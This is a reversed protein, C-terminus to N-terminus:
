VKQVHKRIQLHNELRSILSMASELTMSKQQQGGSPSYLAMECEQVLDTVQAILEAPVGRAELKGKINEKSLVSIPLDLKDSLYLLVAKSIEEYFPGHHPDTLLRRATALRKWAVKNAKKKRWLGANARRKAERARLLLAVIFGMLTLLFLGGFWPTVVWLSRAAKWDPMTGALGYIDSPLDGKRDSDYYKGKKVQLNHAPITRTIYKGAVPDFYSFEFAPITYTGPREPNLMYTFQKEGRIGPTRSTITDQVAPDGVALEDPFNIKPKGLLKFNGTGSIIIDLPLSEDTTMVDSDLRAEVDFHGVGGTFGPPAGAPLPLVNIEVPKSSLDLSVEKYNYRSFLDRNFFPDDMFLSGFGSGDRLHRDEGVKELIRVVGSAKAPDLKLKGSQQPFLASKKLLFVQYVKGDIVEETMQPPNPINFDESWFGNLSPLQTLTMNMPLRTYLKYSANIQEGVYAQAKDVTVRIFINKHIDNETFEDPNPRSADARAAGQPMRRRIMEEMQRRAERMAAFPDDFFPDSFPDNGSQERNQRGLSGPVVEVRCSNTYYTKGNSVMAAPPITLTGTRDPQLIYTLHITTTVVSQGNYNTIQTANSQNPGSVLRFGNFAPPSFDDVRGANQISFTVGVRDNIGIKDASPQASFVIEQACLALPLACLLFFFGAIRRWTM